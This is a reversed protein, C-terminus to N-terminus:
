GEVESLCFIGQALLALSSDFPISLLLNAWPVMGQKGRNSLKDKQVPNFYFKSFEKKVAPLFWATSM